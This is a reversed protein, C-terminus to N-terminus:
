FMSALKGGDVGLYLVNWRGCHGDRKHHFFPGLDLTASDTELSVLVYSAPFQAIRHLVQSRNANGVRDKQFAQEGLGEVRRLQILVRFADAIVQAMVAIKLRNHLIGLGLKAVLGPAEANRWKLFAIAFGHINSNGNLFTVSEPQFGNGKLVIFGDLVSLQQPLKKRQLVASSKVSMFHLFSQFVQTFGVTLNAVDIKCGDRFRLNVIFLFEKGQVNIHVFTFREEHAANLELAIGSGAVAHDPALKQHLFPM